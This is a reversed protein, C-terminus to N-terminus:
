FKGAWSNIMGALGIIEKILLSINSVKESFTVQGEPLYTDPIVQGMGPKAQGPAGPLRAISLTSGQKLNFDRMVNHQNLCLISFFSQFDRMALIEPVVGPTERSGSLSCFRIRLHLVNSQTFRALHEKIKNVM